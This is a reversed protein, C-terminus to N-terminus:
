LTPEESLPDCSPFVRPSRPAKIDIVTAEYIRQWRKAIEEVILTPSRAYLIEDISVLVDFADGGYEDEVTCRFRVSNPFQKVMSADVRGFPVADRIRSEMELVSSLLEIAAQSITRSM